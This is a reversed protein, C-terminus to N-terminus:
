VCMCDSRSLKKWCNCGGLYTMSGEQGEFSLENTVLEELFIYPKTKVCFFAWFIHSFTISFMLGPSWLVLEQASLQITIRISACFIYVYSVLFRFVNIVCYFLRNTNFSFKAVFNLNLFGFKIYFLLM